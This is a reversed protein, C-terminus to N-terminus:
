SAVGPHQAFVHLHLRGAWWLGLHQHRSCGDVQPCAQVNHTFTSHTCRSAFSDVRAAIPDFSARRALLARETPSIYDQGVIKFDSSRDHRHGEIM